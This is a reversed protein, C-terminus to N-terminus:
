QQISKQISEEFTWGAYLRGFLLKPSIGLKNAWQTVNLTEGNYSYIKNSRRNNAQAVSDVWRCNDPEYNGDNNIRDISLGQKYGSSLAWNRFSEYSNSWSKCVSIGRGGYDMYHPNSEKMCRNRIQLWVGYLHTKSEGLQGKSHRM